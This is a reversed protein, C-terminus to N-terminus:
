LKLKLKLEGASSSNSSGESKQPFGGAIVMDFIAKKIQKYMSNKERFTFWTQDDQCLHRDRIFM